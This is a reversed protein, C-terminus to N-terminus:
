FPPLDEDAPQEGEPEDLDATDAPTDSFGVTTLINSRGEASGDRLNEILFSAASAKLGREGRSWRRILALQDETFDAKDMLNAVYNRQNESAPRVGSNGGGNSERPAASALGDDDEQDSIGLASALAYRRMYTIASGQGQPDDKPLLLPAEYHIREGSEHLLLTVLTPNGQDDQSPFQSLAIGHKNLVPKVTRILNGLTTFKSKFHPNTGDREVAPMETQAALLAPILKSGDSM